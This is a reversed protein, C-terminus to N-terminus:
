LVGEGEGHISLVYISARGRAKACVKVGGLFFVLFVGHISVFYIRCVKCVRGGLRGPGALRAGAHKLAALALM